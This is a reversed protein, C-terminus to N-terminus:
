HILTGRRWEKMERHKKIIPAMDTGPVVYVTMKLEPVYVPIKAANAKQVQKVAKKHLSEAIAQRNSRNGVTAKNNFTNRAGM